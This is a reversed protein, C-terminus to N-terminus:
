ARGDQRGPASVEYGMCSFGYELHYAGPRSVNWVRELDSPLSGSASVINDDKLMGNLEMLVRTQNMATGDGELTKLRDREAEWASPMTSRM